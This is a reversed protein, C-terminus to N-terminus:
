KKRSSTTDGYTDLIVQFILFTIQRKVEMKSDNLEGCFIDSTYIYKCFSGESGKKKENSFGIHLNYFSNVNHDGVGEAITVEYYFYGFTEPFANLCYHQEISLLHAMNFEEKSIQEVTFKEGDRPLYFM